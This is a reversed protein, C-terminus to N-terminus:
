EGERGSNGSAIMHRMVVCDEPPNRYYNKRVDLQDFDFNEYLKIAAENSPRVELFVQRLKLDTALGLIFSLLRKAISKRQFKQSVAINTLHGEEVGVWLIAYGVLQGDLEAVQPHSFSSAIDELFVSEPWPDTFLDEELIMVAPLDGETMGRIYFDNAAM